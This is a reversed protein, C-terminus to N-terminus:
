VTRHECKGNEDKEGSKEESIEAQLFKKQYKERIRTGEDYNKNNHIDLFEGITIWNKITIVTKYVINMLLHYNIMGITVITFM